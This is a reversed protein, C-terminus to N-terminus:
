KQKVQIVAVSESHKLFAVEYKGISISDGPHLASDLLLNSVGGKRSLIQMPGTRSDKEGDILYVLVGEESLKLEDFGLNRRYEFALARQADLRIIGLKPNETNVELPSLSVRKPEGDNFSTLDMCRLQNAGIWGLQFRFWGNLEIPTNKWNQSMIDWDGFYKHREVDNAYNGYWGYLDVLGLLHGTEHVLWRWESFESAFSGAATGVKVVGSSTTFPGFFAPGPTIISQSIENSAVVYVVDFDGLRLESSAVKLGDLFYNRMDSQWASAGYSEPNNPMMFYKSSITFRFRLKGYSVARFYADTNKALAAFDRQPDSTARFSPFDVPVILAKVEKNAAIFTGTASGGWISTIPFGVSNFKSGVSKIKCADADHFSDQPSEETVIGESLPPVRPSVPPRSVNTVGKNWFLKKGAKVCTFKKGQVVQFLGVKSCSAGAKAIAGFGAQPSVLSFTVAIVIAISLKRM